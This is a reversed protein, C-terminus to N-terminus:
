KSWYRRCSHCLLLDKRTVDGSTM